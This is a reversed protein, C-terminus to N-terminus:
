FINEFLQLMAAWSRRDADPHYALGDIGRKDAEPNTFSHRAGGYSNFQWDAGAENLNKKIVRIAEDTVFADAGGNNILIRAKISDKESAEQPLSGHFSAVGKLDAGDMAMQLVVYGGFCYGIAAMKDSQCRAHGKLEDFAANFRIRAVPLNEKVHGSWQGAEEPHATIKGGGYMDLAFATYGAEALARAKSRAHDNLGWWEHVVLVGPQPETMADDYFLVGKCATDGATYEIIEEVVEGVSVSSWLILLLWIWKVM